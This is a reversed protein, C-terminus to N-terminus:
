PPPAAGAAGGVMGGVAAKAFSGGGSLGTAAGLSASITQMSTLLTGVASKMVYLSMLIGGISLGAYASASGTQSVAILAAFVIGMLLSASWSAQLVGVVRRFMGTVGGATDNFFVFLLGIPLSVWIAFLSFSFVLQILAFCVALICPIIGLLLRNIGAQINYIAEARKAADFAGIDGDVAYNPQPTGYFGLPLTGRGPQSARSQPCHIDIADAYLMTAALDDM